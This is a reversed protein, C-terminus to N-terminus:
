HSDATIWEIRVTLLKESGFAFGLLVTHCIAAYLVLRRRQRRQRRRRRRRLYQVQDEIALPQTEVRDVSTEFIAIAKNTTAFYSLISDGNHRIGM